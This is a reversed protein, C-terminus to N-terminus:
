LAAPDQGTSAVGQMLQQVLAGEEAPRVIERALNFDIVQLWREIIKTFDFRGSQILLPNGLIVQMAQQLINLQLQKNTNSPTGSPTIDFGRSIESKRVAIPVEQNMLRVFVEQPGLDMFIDWIKRVSRGFSEQFIRADLGFISGSLSQIASVETATRRESSSGMQTLTADFVGVYTEALRQQAQEEVLLASLIRLDQPIPALDGIQQVPILAGPRWEVSKAFDEGGLARYQLVPALMIQAADIRANHFGNAIQQFSKVLDAVGRNDIPRRAAEFPFYVVPWSDFPYVYDSISLVMKQKPAYWVVVKEREGDGNIDVRAYIEWLLLRGVDAGTDTMDSNARRNMTHRIQERVGNGSETDELESKNNSAKELFAATRGPLLIGDTGMSRITDEDLRHVMTFIEATEPDQDQPVIVNIPDISQWAPRDHLVKRYVIKVAKAGALIKDAAEMVAEEDRQQDLDYEDMITEVVIDHPDPVNGEEQMEQQQLAQIDAELGNPFLHDVLIVRAERETRYDWGIRTYAHGRWAINTILDILPHTTDMDVRFLWTFVQEAIRAADVDGPEQAKFSAVNDPDLILSAIAPRWRRILGDTLPVSVNSSGKWPGKRATRVGMRLRTLKEQRTLWGVMDRDLREVKQILNKIEKDVHESMEEDTLVSLVEVSIPNIRGPM